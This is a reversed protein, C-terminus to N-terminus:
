HQVKHASLLKLQWWLLNLYKLAKSSTSVTYTFIYLGTGSALLPIAIRHGTRTGNKLFMLSISAATIRSFVMGSYIRKNNEQSRHCQAFHIIAWQCGSDICAELLHSLLLIPSLGSAQLTWKPNRTSFQSCHPSAQILVAVMALPGTFEVPKMWNQTSQPRSSELHSVNVSELRWHGKRTISECLQCNSEGQM